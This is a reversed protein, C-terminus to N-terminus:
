MHELATQLVDACDSNDNEEAIMKWHKVDSATMLRIAGRLHLCRDLEMPRGEKCCREVGRLGIQAQMADRWRAMQAARPHSNWRALWHDYGPFGYLHRECTYFLRRPPLRDRGSTLLLRMVGFREQICALRFAKDDKAHVNMRRDELLTLLIKVVDEHGQECAHILAYENQAHVDIRRDGELTLLFRVVDDRGHKCAEIFADENEAHVNIRLGGEWALMAKVMPIHGGRCALVFAFEEDEHVNILTSADSLLVEVLDVNGGECAEYFDDQSPRIVNRGYRRYTLFWKCLEFHGHNCAYRFSEEVSDMSMRREVDTLALLLQVVGLHGNISALRLGHDRNAHVDINRADFDRPEISLLTAVVDAHGNECAMCFAFDNRDRVWIQYEDDALLFRVIPDHGHECARRFSANRYLIAHCCTDSIALLRKLVNFQGRVSAHEIAYLMCKFDLEGEVWSLEEIRKVDCAICADVFQTQMAVSLLPLLPISTANAHNSFSM